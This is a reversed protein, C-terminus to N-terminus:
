YNPTLRYVCVPRLTKTFVPSLPLISQSLLWVLFSDSEQTTMLEERERERGWEGDGEEREEKRRESM